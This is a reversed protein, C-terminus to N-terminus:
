DRYFWDLPIIHMPTGMNMQPNVLSKNYRILVKDGAITIDPYHVNGFPLPLEGLDDAGRVM